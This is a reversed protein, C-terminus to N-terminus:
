AFFSHHNIEVFVSILPRIPWFYGAERAYVTSGSALPLTYISASIKPRCPREYM